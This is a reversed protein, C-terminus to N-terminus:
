WTIVQLALKWGANTHKWVRLYNEKDNVSGYVYALDKAASLGGGLPKMVLDAPIKAIADAHQITTTAPQLGNTNLWSDAALFDNFAKNGNKTYSDILQQDIAEANITANTKLPKGATSIKIAPESYKTVTFAYGMDVINKWEGAANKRWISNFMGAAIVTDAVTKKYQWPGTTFGIDGSAAIGAFAPEWLL